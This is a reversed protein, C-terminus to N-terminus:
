RNNKNKTTKKTTKTAAKTTAKTTTTTTAKTTTTTTTNSTTTENMAIVSNSINKKTNAIKVNNIIILLATGFLCIGIVVLLVRNIIEKQSM